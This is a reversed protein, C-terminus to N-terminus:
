ISGRTGGVWPLTADGWAFVNREKWEEVEDTVSITPKVRREEAKHWWRSCVSARAFVSVCVYACM